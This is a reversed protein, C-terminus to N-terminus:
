HRQRWRQTELDWSCTKLLRNLDETAGPDTPACPIYRHDTAPRAYWGFERCEAVGPYEGSWPIRRPDDADFGECVFAQRGCHPCTELDCGEVHFAGRMTGCDPCRTVRSEANNKRRDTMLWQRRNHSRPGSLADVLVNM